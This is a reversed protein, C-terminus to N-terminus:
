SVSMGSETMSARTAPMWRGSTLRTLLGKLGLVQAPQIGTVLVPIVSIKAAGENRLLQMSSARTTEWDWVRYPKDGTGPMIGVRNQRM